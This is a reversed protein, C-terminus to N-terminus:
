SNLITKLKLIILYAFFGFVNKTIKKHIAFDASVNKNTKAERIIIELFVLVM